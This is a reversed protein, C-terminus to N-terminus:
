ASLDGIQVRLVGSADFVKIVNNAIFLRAGTTANQITTNGAADVIFKNNINLNGATISGMNASIASLNAVDIKDATVADAAIKVATVAGAFIKNATVADAAIKDATVANAEIKIATVANTQIQSASVTNPNLNGSSQDLAAVNTKAATIAANAIKLETIAQDVLESTGITQPPVIVDLDIATSPDIKWTTDPLNIDVAFKISRAGLPKYYLSRQTGFGNAVEYWTYDAPNDSETTSPSNFVGFFTKYTQINSIGAGNSSDAYRIHIYRFPYETLDGAGTNPITTTTSGAGSGNLALDYLFTDLEPNGTYPPIVNM